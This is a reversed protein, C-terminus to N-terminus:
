QLDLLLLEYVGSLVLSIYKRHIIYIHSKIYSQIHKRLLLVLYQIFEILFNRQLNRRKIALM